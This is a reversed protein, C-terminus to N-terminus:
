AWNSEISIVADRLKNYIASNVPTRLDVAAPISTPTDIQAPYNPM